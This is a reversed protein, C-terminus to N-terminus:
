DFPLYFIEMYEPHVKLYNRLTSLAQCKLTKISNPKKGLREAIVDNCYMDFYALQLIKQSEKGLARQFLQLVREKYIEDEEIEIIHQTIVDDPFDEKQDFLPTRADYGRKRKWLNNAIGWIYPQLATKETFKNNVLCEYFVVMTNQFLEIGDDGQGGRYKIAQLIPNRFQAYLYQFATEKEQPGQKLLQLLLANNFRKEFRM